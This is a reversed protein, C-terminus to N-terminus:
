MHRHSGCGRGTCGCTYRGEQLLEPPLPKGERRLREREERDEQERYAPYLYICATMLVCLWEKM